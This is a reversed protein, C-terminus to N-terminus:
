KKEGKKFSSLLLIAVGICIASDAINFAPWHYEGLYFDLFDVVAGFRIRDIVNGLAGGLILALGVKAMKNKEKQIWYILLGAVVLTFASLLMPAYASDSTLLSFSVGRNFTLFLNFLPFIEMTEHEVCKDLVIIKSLQDFLIVFLSWLYIM